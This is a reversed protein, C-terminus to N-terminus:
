SKKRERSLIRNRHQLSGCLGCAGPASASDQIARSFIARQVLDRVKIREWEPLPPSALNRIRANRDVRLTKTATKCDVESKQYEAHLLLIEEVTSRWFVIASIIESYRLSAATRTATNM